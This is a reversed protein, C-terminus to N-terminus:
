ICHHSFIKTFKLLCALTIFILVDCFGSTGNDTMNTTFVKSECVFLTLQLKKQIGRSNEQFLLSWINSKM